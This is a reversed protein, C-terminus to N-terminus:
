IKPFDFCRISDLAWYASGPPWQQNDVDHLGLQSGGLVGRVECCFPVSSNSPDMLHDGCHWYPTESGLVKNMWNNTKMTCGIALRSLLFCVSPHIFKTKPLRILKYADTQRSVSLVGGEKDAGPIGWLCHPARLRVNATGQCRLCCGIM